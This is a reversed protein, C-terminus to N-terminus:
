GFTFAFTEVGPDFFEIEFTRDVDSASQRILQYLRPEVVTGNGDDDVDLGHALGPPQGDMSVRFRIPRERQSPGVVLHVDRAHFRYVLRGNPNDLVAAESGITWEGALAWQNLALRAPAAYARRRDRRAGGSSVFREARKYGLDTEPSKLTHWDAAAEVGRAEVSVVGNRAGGVGADTLLRQIVKESRDYEGEGFHHHRLRGRADIVYFAPWYQNNFARWIAYDNDVAIPFGIKIQQVARRVNELGKEFAFEPTHVGIVAFGQRYNQAWARVYPLTRLWNICTYTGFQVLVVKGLLNSATVPPSNLWATARGLAALERPEGESVKATGLIGLQAGAMTLIAEGLFRRRGHDVHKQM